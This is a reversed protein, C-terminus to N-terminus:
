SNKEKSETTVSKKPSEQAPKPLFSRLIAEMKNMIERKEESPAYTYGEIYYIKDRQEDVFAYGLFPGGKSKDAWAWLGRYEVIFYDKVPMLRAAIPLEVQIDLFASDRKPNNVYRRGLLRRWAVISDVSFDSESTYPKATMFINQYSRPSKEGVWLFNGSEKVKVYGLPIKLGVDFKERFKKALVKSSDDMRLTQEIRKIEVDHFFSYIQTKHKILNDILRKDTAGYLFMMKQDKAYQNERTYMYLNPDVKIQEISKKSYFEQMKRGAMSQDEFSTVFIINRHKRIFGSFNKPHMYLLDFRPEQQPLGEIPEELIKRLTIGIETTWKTSDMVVMIEAQGGVSPVKNSTYDALECGALCGILLCLVITIKLPLVRM